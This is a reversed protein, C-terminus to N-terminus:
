NVALFGGNLGLLHALVWDDNSEQFKFEPNAASWGRGNSCDLEETSMLADWFFHKFGGTPMERGIPDDNESQFTKYTLVIHDAKQLSWNSRAWVWVTMGIWHSEIHIYAQQTDNRILGELLIYEADEMRMEYLYNLTM